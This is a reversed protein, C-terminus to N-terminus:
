GSGGVAPEPTVRPDDGSARPNVATAGAESVPRRVAVPMLLSAAVAIHLLYPTAEGLTVETYSAVACYVTLFVAVARATSPPRFAATVLLALFIAAVLADGVVGEDEYVGLWDSDLARGEFSKNTVGHGIWRQAGPRSESLLATWVTRRGSLDSIDASSQGRALFAVLSPGSSVLLIPVLVLAVIVVRRARRRATVLSLLAALVGITLGLLATRTHTLLLIGFGIGVLLLARRRRMSGSLWLVLVMGTAVAAYEGVQTAPVSWLVGTLRGDPRARSPAMILGAVVTALVVVLARLHCRALLLDGRAWWPTLLWLVLTFEAFRFTRYITGLSTSELVMGVIAVVVLATSLGMVISFQMRGRRNLSLALLVALALAAATMVQRIQTPIPLISVTDGTGLVNFLLLFWITGVRRRIWRDPTAVSSVTTSPVPASGAVPAALANLSEGM